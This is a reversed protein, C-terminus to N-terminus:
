RDVMRGEEEGEEEEDDEEELYYERYSCRTTPDGAM